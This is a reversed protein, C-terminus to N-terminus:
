CGYSELTAKVRVNRRLTRLLASLFTLTAVSAHLASMSMERGCRCGTELSFRPAKRLFHHEFRAKGLKGADLVRDDLTAHLPHADSFKNRRDGIGAREAEDGRQGLGRGFIEGFLDRTAAAHGVPR